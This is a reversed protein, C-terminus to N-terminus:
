TNETPTQEARRLLEHAIARADYLTHRGQRTRPWNRRHALTWVAPTTIGLRTAAEDATLWSM